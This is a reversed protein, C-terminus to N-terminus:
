AFAVVLVSQRILVSAGGVIYGHAVTSSNLNFLCFFYRFSTWILLLSVAKKVGPSKIIRLNLM